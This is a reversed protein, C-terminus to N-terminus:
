FRASVAPASRFPSLLESLNDSLGVRSGGIGAKFIL